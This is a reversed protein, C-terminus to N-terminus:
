LKQLLVPTVNGYRKVIKKMYFLSLVIRTISQCKLYFGSQRHKVRFKTIRHFFMSRRFGYVCISAPWLLAEIQSGAGVNRLTFSSTKCLWKSTICNSCKFQIRKVQFPFSFSIVHGLVTDSVLLDYWSTWPFHSLSSPVNPDCAWSGCAAREALIYNILSPLFLQLSM